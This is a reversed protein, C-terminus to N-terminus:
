RRGSTGGVSSSSARTRSQRARSPSSTAAYGEALAEAAALAALNGKQEFLECARDAAARADALRGARAYVTALSLQADAHANLYDTPEAVAVAAEALRVDNALRAEVAGRVIHAYLDDRSSMEASRAAATAAEDLAGRRELVDALLAAATSIATTAGTEESIALGERLKSEALELDGTLVALQAWIQAAGALALRLGLEECIERDRELLARAEEFEGTM